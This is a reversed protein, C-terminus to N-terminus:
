TVPCCPSQGYPSIFASVKGLQPRPIGCPVWLVPSAARSQAPPAAVPFQHSM